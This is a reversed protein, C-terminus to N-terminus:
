QWTYIPLNGKGQIIEVLEFFAIVLFDEDKIYCKLTLNLFFVQKFLLLFVRAFLIIYFITYNGIHGAPSGLKRFAM